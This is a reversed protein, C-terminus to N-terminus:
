IFASDPVFVHKAGSSEKAAVEAMEIDATILIPIKSCLFMNLIMADSSAIGYRGILSVTDEWSPNTILFQNENESRVSLFNLNFITEAAPWISYFKTALYRKCFLEWGNGDAHEYSSLLKRFAKIQNPDIKASKDEEVKRRYSTRHSKLKQLLAGDYNEDSDELLDILGEAILVRRHNELFESRVNVNAFVKVSNDALIDFSYEADENYHDLPYTASFLISTDVFALDFENAKLLTNLDSFKGIM